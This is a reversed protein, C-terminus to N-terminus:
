IILVWFTGGSSILFYLILKVVVLWWGWFSREKGKDQWLFLRTPPHSRFFDLLTIWLSEDPAKFFLLSLMKIESHHRSCQLRKPVKHQWQVLANSSTQPHRGTNILCAYLSFTWKQAIIESPSLLFAVRLLVQLYLTGLLLFPEQGWDTPQPILPCPLSM